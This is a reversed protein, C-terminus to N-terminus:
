GSLKLANVMLEEGSGVWYDSRVASSPPYFNLEVIQRGNKSGHVVLPAGSGWNAVAVGGNIVAGTSRYARTANLGVVGALLPNSPELFQLPLDETPQVQPAVAILAYNSSAWRGAIEGPDTNTNAFVAVVVRGGGDWFDALVDGMASANYFPDSSFVLVADYNQLQALTPTGPIANFIDTVTFSSNLTGQVNTMAVDNDTGVIM